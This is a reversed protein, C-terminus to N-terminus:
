KKEDGSPKGYEDSPRTRKARQFFNPIGWYEAGASCGALYKESFPEGDLYQGYEATMVYVVANRLRGDADSVTVIRRNYFDPYGEYSDLAALDNATIEYLAGNVCAAACEVIDAFRREVLKWGPRVAASIEVAEPCRHKMQEVNLNSGYAFYLYKDM